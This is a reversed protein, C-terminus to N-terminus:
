RLMTIATKLGDFLQDVDQQNNYFAFSARATGELGFKQMVPMACHHGTRIAVGQNDLLTGLDHPHVGDVVFSLVSTKDKATGILRTGDIAVLRKTADELLRDEHLIAADFDLSMVYELATGLAINGAINPTGAEFKYPLDNYTTGDFRVEKIMDGGSRYPPMVDLLNEKGYLVGTGTPGFIKHGSFAYFDCDLDSVDLAIHASAQAGDILVLAGAAHALAILEKVPNISGLANSVHGIAVIKTRDTLKSRFNEIPIEGSDSIPVVVLKAQNTQAAIQWPVINSHHELESILIEDGPNLLYQGLSHAVLNISDTTGSTFIIEACSNANLFVRTTERASEYADTAEASLTHVGRHINANGTAYYRTLTDIVCQPKQTTAANDLYALRAGNTLPQKLIPFDERAVIPDRKSHKPRLENIAAKNM